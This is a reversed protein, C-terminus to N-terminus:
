RGGVNATDSWPPNMAVPRSREFRGLRRLIARLRQMQEQRRLAILDGPMTREAGTLMTWLYGALILLGGVIYPWHKMQHVSSLLEWTPHSGLLYDKRGKHVKASMGTYQASGSPRHHLCVKATFTRTEWGKARASLVAILDIGGSKIPRYGGIAEFCQRRFMQCAGAVDQVSAFRYDYTRGDVERYATGAVGLRPSEAFKRMLFAFYDEDFSVDADLNGIVDYELDKVRAYGANFATVKGAFHRETRSDQRVLEIWDHEAAYRAVVDDTGDTSGDSVVVWRAPRPTQRLVALITQEIFAAEDRAPTILVYTPDGRRETMGTM